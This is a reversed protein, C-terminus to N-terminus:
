RSFLENKKYEIIGTDKKTEESKKINLFNFSVYNIKTKDEQLNNNTDAKKDRIIVLEGPEIDKNQIYKKIYEEFNIKIETTKNGSEYLIIENTYNNNNINKKNIYVSVNINKIDFTNNGLINRFKITSVDNIIDNLYVNLNDEKLRNNFQNRILNYYRKIIWDRKNYYKNLSFDATNDATTNKKDMTNLLNRNEDLIVM